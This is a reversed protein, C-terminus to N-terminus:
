ISDLSSFVNTRRDTFEFFFVKRLKKCHLREDIDEVAPQLSGEETKLGSPLQLVFFSFYNIDVPFIGIPNIFRIFLIKLHNELIPESMIRIELETRHLALVFGKDSNFDVIFDKRLTNPLLNRWFVEFWNFFLSRFEVGRHDPCFYERDDFAGHLCVGRVEFAQTGGHVKFLAFSEEEVLFFLHVDVIKELLILDVLNVVLAIVHHIHDVVDEL